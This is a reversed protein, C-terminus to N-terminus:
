TQCPNSGTGGAGSAWGVIGGQGRETTLRVVVSRPTLKHTRTDIVPTDGPEWIETGFNDYM